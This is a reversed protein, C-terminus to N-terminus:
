ARKYRYALISGVFALSAFGLTGPEPVESALVPTARDAELFRFEFRTDLAGQSSGGTPGFFTRAYGTAFVSVTTGLTVPIVARTIGFYTSGPTCSSDTNATCNQATTTAFDWPDPNISLGSTMYAGAGERSGINTIAIGSNVGVQLYGQRVPGETVIQVAYDIAVNGSGRPGNGTPNSTPAQRESARQSTLLVNFQAPNAAMILSVSGSASVSGLPPAGGASCSSFNGGDTYTPDGFPSVCTVTVVSAAQLSMCLGLSYVVLLGRL